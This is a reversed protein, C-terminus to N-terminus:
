LLILVISTKIHNDLKEKEMWDLVREHKKYYSM